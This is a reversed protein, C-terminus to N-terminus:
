VSPAEADRRVWRAITEFMAEVNLPKAIHDNMGAALAKDRDGSMADATMAIIPLAQWRAQLRIARTAEYGDMVPMQCDMLVADFDENALMAIAQRGDEALTVELGHGSLLELALEQNIANDEVLLVRAGDLRARLDQSSTAPGDALDVGEAAHGLARSCVDLLRSPTVPKVLLGIGGLPQEALRQEIEARDFTTSMLLMAMPHSGETLLQACGIGDLGPMKWDILALEFPIGADAALTAARMADWADCAPEARWGLAALMEILAGRAAVNDDVVLVRLGHLRPEAPVAMTGVAPLAFRASFHFACGQGPQSEVGITGQMLAVLHRSIALGLGTGGYRRTISADAQVFPQFLGAQQEASMGVGSDSVTFRLLASDGSREIMGASVVVEGRETFKVANSGLNVLVQALRLPDGVLVPPLDPPLAFVLELGKDHAKLGVLDALQELVDTLAFPLAEMDLKGAEIKSFDLIDNILGLLSQASRQAKLVYNHQRSDLGSRLALHTMGLIANMPTRIEHSMNALFDSKARTADEAIRRAEDLERTREQVRLELHDRSERLDRVLRANDLAGFVHGVLIHLVQLRRRSFAHPTARNELYIVGLLSGPKHVPLCLLSKPRARRVYPDAAFRDDRGPEDLLLTEGTQRVYRVASWALQEADPVAAGSHARAAVELHDANALLLVAHDAGAYQMLTDILTQLLREYDLEASITHAAKLVAEFELNGGSTTHPWPEDAPAMPAAEPGFEDDLADLMAQAGWAAFARRSRTLAGQGLSNLGLVFCLRALRQAALAVGQLCAQQEAAEIAQEYGQLAEHTRGDLRHLEARVLAAKAAFTTPAHESWRELQQLRSKIAPRDADPQMALAVAGYYVSMGQLLHGGIQHLLPQGEALAQAAREARNALVALELEFHWYHMHAVGVYPQAAFMVELSFEDDDWNWRSRTRAQLVRSYQRYAQFLGVIFVVGQRRAVDCARNAEEDYRSLPVGSQLLAACRPQFSSSLVLLRGHRTAIDAADGALRLVEGLSGNWPLVFHAHQYLISALLAEDGTRTIVERWFPWEDFPARYDDGLDGHIQRSQMYFPWIVCTPGQELMLRMAQLALLCLMTPREHYAFATESLVAAAAARRLESPQPWDVLLRHYAGSRWSERYDVYLARLHAASDDLDVAVGLEALLDLGIRAVAEYNADGMLRTMQRRHVPGMELVDPPDACLAAYYRDGDSLRGLNFCIRHADIALARRLRVDAPNLALGAQAYVLAQGLALRQVAQQMARRNLAALAERPAPQEADLGRNLHNVAAFLTDGDAGDALMTHGIHGHAQRRQAETLRGHALEQIRDHAFRYVIAGGEHEAAVRQVLFLADCAPQLTTQLTALDDDGGEDALLAIQHLHFERGFCAALALLHRTADPLHEEQRLLLDVMGEDPALEDLAQAHWAWTLRLPDFRLVDMGRLHNLFTLISFPNGQTRHHIARALAEEDDAPARLIDRVLAASAAVGLPRLPLAELAVGGDACARSLTDITPEAGESRHLLALLLHRPADERLLSQLLSISAADAWQLDDVVWVLPHEASCIVGLLARVARQLRRRNDQEGQDVVAPQAGVLSPLHPLLDFLVIGQGDLAALIAEQWRVRAPHADALRQAIWHGISETLASFPLSQHLADFKGQIFFGGDAAVLPRLERVLASKGIGGEGSILLVECAGGRVRQWAAQLAAQERERGHLGPAPNLRDSVDRRGLEFTAIAGGADLEDRCRALDDALGWSTQYRDDPSKAILRHVIACVVPPLDPRLQALPVPHATMHAHAWGLADGASFPLVGSALRYLTIGLSYLDSRGDVPRNMSGSQEPSAFPLTGELGQREHQDAEEGQVRIASSFDVVTLQQEAANWVVNAPNLDLHLIGAHHIDQLGLAAQHAITLLEALTLAGADLEALPVGGHWPLVLTPDPADIHLALPHAVFRSQVRLLLGHERQLRFRASAGAQEARLQKLAVLSGDAAEALSVRHRLGDRIVGIVRFAAPPNSTVASRRVSM